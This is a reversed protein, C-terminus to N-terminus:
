LVGGAQNTLAQATIPVLLELPERLVKVGPNELALQLRVRVALPLGVDGATTDWTSRWDTGNYCLFELSEVGGALLQEEEEVTTTPLVNRTIIRVLERGNSNTREAPEVLEYRVKQLDGWAVEEGIVGTTTYFELSAAQAAGLGSGGAGTKFDRPLVYSNTVPQVAGQLDSRLIALAQNLPAREDVSRSVARELKLASFFVTNIAFLVVAFIGVALLVEILTFAENKIKAKIEIGGSRAPSVDLARSGVGLM